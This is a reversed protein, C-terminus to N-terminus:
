VRKKIAQSAMESESCPAPPPTAALAVVILEMVNPFLSMSAPRIKWITTRTTKAVHQASKAKRTWLNGDLFFGANWFSRDEARKRPKKPATTTQKVVMDMRHM